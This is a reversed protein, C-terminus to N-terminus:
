GQAGGGLVTDLKLRSNVLLSVLEVQYLHPYVVLICSSLTAIKLYETSTLNRDEWHLQGEAM